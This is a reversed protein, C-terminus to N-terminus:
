FKVLETIVIRFYAMGMVRMSQTRRMTNEVPQPSLTILWKPVGFDAM